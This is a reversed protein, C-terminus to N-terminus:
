PTTSTFWSYLVASFSGPVVPRETWQGSQRSAIEKGTFEPSELWERKRKAEKLFM